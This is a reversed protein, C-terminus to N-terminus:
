VSELPKQLRRGVGATVAVPAAFHLSGGPRACGRPIRGGKGCRGMEVTETAGGGRSDRSARRQRV